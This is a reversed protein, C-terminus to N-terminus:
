LQLLARDVHRFLFHLLQLEYMPHRWALNTCRQILPVGHDVFPQQIGLLVHYELFIGEADLYEKSSVMILPVSGNNYVECNVISLLQSSHSIESRLVGM